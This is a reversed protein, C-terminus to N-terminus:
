GLREMFVDLLRRPVRSDLIRRAEGLSFWCRQRLGAEPWDECEREVAMPFVEVSCVGGWKRYRYVGLPEPLVAGEIGAEEYAEAAASEAPSLHEEVLGKPLVWRRGRNNTILLVELADADRRFPVVASQPFVHEAGADGREAARAEEDAMAREMILDTAERIGDTVVVGAPLEARHKRGHGSLVYIGTAGSRTAFEVDHPHDGITFSRALDIGFDQEAQRLFYPNPKICHCGAAREHPCVYTEAIRIGHDALYSAVHANVRDVDQMTITGKAVGSQNTVLFLLFRESLRRLSEVTDGYFVVQCPESLDGRDEIITGDRDLFVAPLSTSTAPNM